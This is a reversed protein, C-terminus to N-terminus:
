RLLFPPSLHEKKGFYNEAVNDLQTRIIKFDTNLDLTKAGIQNGSMNFYCDPAIDEETKAYLLLGSVKGTNDKDQNKVYTYIQYLHNSRLTHKEFQTQLTKGYYKADIILVTDNKRLFTDTQMVPLLRIAANKNEDEAMDWKIQAAKVETLYSHEQKFYELIFREYLAAMHKESFAAMHYKGKDTTQLMGDLVLYCINLLMEYNKNNRQYYLISWLIESPMLLDVNDFFVLHKKLGAKRETDVDPDRILYFMTTKLIQNYINNETLEDYDCALKQNRRIRNSITGHIDIKGRLVSLTNNHSIYERHLGRKLQQAVGKNLIAAFLDQVNEFDEAAVSEYNTQMLVRFAYSLMYYINKILIGKDKTM